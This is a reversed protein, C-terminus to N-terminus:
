RDLCSSLVCSCRREVIRNPCIIAVEPSDIGPASIQGGLGGISTVSIMSGSLERATVKGARVAEALACDESGRGDSCADTRLCRRLAFTFLGGVAMEGVGAYIEPCSSSYIQSM